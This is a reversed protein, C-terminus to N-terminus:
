STGTVTLYTLQGNCVYEGTDSLQASYIFLHGDKVFAKSSTTLLQGHRWWGGDGECLMSLSTDLEAYVKSVVLSGVTVIM